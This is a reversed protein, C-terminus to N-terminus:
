LYYLLVPISTPVCAAFVILGAVLAWDFWSPPAPHTKLKSLVSPWLDRPPELEQMPPIAHKLLQRTREEDHANM